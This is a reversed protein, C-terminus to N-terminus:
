RNRVGEGAQPLPNPHPGADCRLPLTPMVVDQGRGRGEGARPLPSFVFRDFLVVAPLVLATSEPSLVMCFLRMRRIKGSAAVATAAISAEPAASACSTTM